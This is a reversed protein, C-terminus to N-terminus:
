QKGAAAKIPQLGVPELPSAREPQESGRNDDRVSLPRDRTRDHRVLSRLARNSPKELFAYSALALLIAGIVTVLAALASRGSLVTMPDILKAVLREVYPHLLYLSYSADGIALLYVPSPIRGELSLVALFLVFACPLLLTIPPAAPLLGSAIIMVALSGLATLALFPVPLRGLVDAKAGYLYFAAIGAGFELVPAGTWFSWPMPLPFLRGTLFAAVLIMGCALPAIVPRFFYLCIAFVAYFFMEYNLTWGLFLTPWAMGNPRAHPIFLLSDRLTLLDSPTSQLLSPRYVAIAFVCLTATWYLPVIRILRGLFFDGRERAAIHCMIFGSIVFFIDVGFAGVGIFDIHFLVVSLAAVARLMQISFITGGKKAIAAM